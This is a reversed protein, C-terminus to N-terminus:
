YSIYIQKKAYGVGVCGEFGKEFTVEERFGEQNKEWVSDIFGEQQM